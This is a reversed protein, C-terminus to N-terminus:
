AATVSVTVAATVGDALRLTVPHEGTTKIHEPLDFTTGDVLVSLIAAFLTGKENAKGVIPIVM